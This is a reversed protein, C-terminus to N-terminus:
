GMYLYLRGPMYGPSLMENLVRLGTVLVTSPDTANKVVDEVLADFVEERLSFTSSSNVTDAKRVDNILASCVDRLEDVIEKYSTFEGTNMRLLINTMMDKYMVVFSYQLREAIAKKIFEIENDNLNTYSDLEDFIKHNIESDNQYCYTKILAANEMGLNIRADLARKAFDFRALLDPMSAYQHEDTMELLKFLNSLDIKKILKSEKFIYGIFMNLIGKDFKFKIKPPIIEYPSQQQYANSPAENNRNGNIKEKLNSTYM